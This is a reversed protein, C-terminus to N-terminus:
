NIEIQNYLNSLKSKLENWEDSSEIVRPTVLVVLETKQTDDTTSDFLTGLLPISSFFPVSRDTLTRNESILGGMIITQGSEAVVETQINREFFIPSGGVSDDGPASNTIKQAVEMIVVGRANITPKVKLEVGTKRYVVSSRSGNTPDTVIEGVTPVDDGVNINATVGDRVLLSPRSLVNVNTNTQLLNLTVSGRAGKLMYSLGTSGSNLEFGGQAQAGLNTLAFEVGQKFLDTLKVEAILVELIVQKPMVDLQRILPLLQRYKDGTTHFILSNAREDVVLSMDESKAVRTGSSSKNTNRTQTNQQSASTSNGLPMPNSGGILMQLSEGLDTARAFRPSYLFYQPMNGSPAVDIQKAWFVARDIVEQKNAFMVVSGIRDLTVISLAKDLLGNASASIGEQKLLEPLKEKLEDVSVFVTRFIGIHRNRFAPQDMLQIFEVARLIDARKGKIALTNRDFDPTASIGVLQRLSNALSTPLGYSFPVFQVITMSTRPVNTTEKGYGYVIDKQSAGQAVDQVYYIGNNKVISFGREELLQEILKFLDQESLNEQLNLTVNKKDVEVSDNLVYSLKLVEGFTYHLFESLALDDVTLKLTKENSFTQLLDVVDGSSIDTAPLGALVEVQDRSNQNENASQLAQEAKVLQDKDASKLFSSPAQLREHTSTCASLVLVLTASLTVTKFNM